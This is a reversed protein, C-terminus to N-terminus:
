LITLVQKTELVAECKNELLAKWYDLDNVGNKASKSFSIRNHHQISAENNGMNIDDVRQQEIGNIKM